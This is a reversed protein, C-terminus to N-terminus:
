RTLKGTRTKNTPLRERGSGYRVDPPSDLRPSPCLPAYGALLLLEDCEDLTVGLAWALRIILDRSPQKPRGGQLPRNLWDATQQEICYLYTRDIGTVDAIAPITKGAQERLRRLERGLVNDEMNVDGGHCRAGRRGRYRQAAAPGGLTDETAAFAARAREFQFRAVYVTVVRAEDETDAGTIFPHLAERLRANEAELAAIRQEYIESTRDFAEAMYVERLTVDSM